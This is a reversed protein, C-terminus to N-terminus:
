LQQRRVTRDSFAANQRIIPEATCPPRRGAVFTKSGDAVKKHWKCLFIGSKVSRLDALPGEASIM